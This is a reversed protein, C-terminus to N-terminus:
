AIGLLLYGSIYIDTYIKQLSEWLYEYDKIFIVYTMTFEKDIKQGYKSIMYKKIKIQLSNEQEM